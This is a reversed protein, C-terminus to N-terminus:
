LLFKNKIYKAFYKGKSESNKFAEFIEQPVDKYEYSKGSTFGVKLTGNDYEIYAINTSVVNVREM